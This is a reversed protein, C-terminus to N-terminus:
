GRCSRLFPRSVIPAIAGVVVEDLGMSQYEGEVYLTDFEDGFPALFVEAGLAEAGGAGMLGVMEREIERVRGVAALVRELRATAEEQQAVAARVRAEEQALYRRKEQVDKGERAMHALSASLTSTLLALNHRLEPLRTPDASGAGFAPLAALSQSALANGSLDVLM